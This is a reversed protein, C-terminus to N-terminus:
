AIAQSLRVGEYLSVAGGGIRANHLGLAILEEDLEVGVGALSPSSKQEGPQCIGNTLIKSKM